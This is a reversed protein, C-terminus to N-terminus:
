FCAAQCDKLTKHCFPSRDCPIAAASAACSAWLRARGGMRLMQCDPALPVTSLESLLWKSQLQDCQRGTLLCVARGIAALCQQQVCAVGAEELLWNQVSCRVLRPRGQQTHQQTLELGRPTGDQGLLRSRQIQSSCYCSRAGPLAPERLTRSLGGSIKQNFRAIQSRSRPKQTTCQDVSSLLSMLLLCLM